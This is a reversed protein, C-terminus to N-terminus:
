GIISRLTQYSEEADSPVSMSPQWRVVESEDSCDALLESVSLGLKPHVVNPAIEALPVLVFKRLHLRPHPLTLFESELTRDGFFLIDLDVTRPAKVSKDGRGLIYEIRLMRAMAQTPTVNTVSCEVAMNLFKDPSQMGVPETEYIASLRRVEFAAELLGRIALLLNGARDGLNSGLGVYVTEHSNGFLGM